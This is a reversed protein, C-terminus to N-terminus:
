FFLSTEEQESSTRLNPWLHLQLSRCYKVCVPPIVGILSKESAKGPWLIRTCRRVAGPMSTMQATGWGLVLQAWRQKVKTILHTGTHGVHCFATKRDTRFNPLPRLFVKDAEQGSVLFSAKQQLLLVPTSLPAKHQPSIYYPYVGPLSPLRSSSAV